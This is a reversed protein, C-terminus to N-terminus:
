FSGGNINNLSLTATNLPASIYTDTNAQYVLVDGQTKTSVNVGIIDNITVNPKPRYNPDSVVTRIPSTIKLRGIDM